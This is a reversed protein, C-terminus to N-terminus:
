KPFVDSGTLTVNQLDADMTFQLKINFDMFDSIRYWKGGVNLRAFEKFEAFDIVGEGAKLGKLTM